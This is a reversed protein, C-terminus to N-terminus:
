GNCFAYCFSVMSFDPCFTMIADIAKKDFDWQIVATFIRLYFLTCFEAGDWFSLDEDLKPLM